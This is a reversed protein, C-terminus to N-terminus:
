GENKCGKLIQKLETDDWEKYTFYTEGDLDEFEEDIAQLYPMNDIYDLAKNVRKFLKEFSKCSDDYIESLHKYEERLRKNENRLLVLENATEMSLYEGNLMVKKM